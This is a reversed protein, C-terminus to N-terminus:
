VRFLICSSRNAMVASRAVAMGTPPNLASQMRRTDIRSANILLLAASLRVSFRESYSFAGGTHVNGKHPLHKSDNGGVDRTWLLYQL